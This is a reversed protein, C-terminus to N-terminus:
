KGVTEFDKLKDFSFDDTKGKEFRADIECDNPKM